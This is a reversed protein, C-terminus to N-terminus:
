RRLLYPCKNQEKVTFHSCVRDTYTCHWYLHLHSYSCGPIVCNEQKTVAEAIDSLNESTDNPATFMLLQKTALVYLSLTESQRRPPNEFDIVDLLM